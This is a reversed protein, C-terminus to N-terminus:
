PVPCELAACASARAQACQFIQEGLPQEPFAPNADVVHMDIIEEPFVQQFAYKTARIKTPNSTAIAIKM